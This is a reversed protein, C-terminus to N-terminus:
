QFSKSHHKFYVPYFGPGIGLVCLISLIKLLMQHKKMTEELIKKSHKILPVSKCNSVATCMVKYASIRELLTQDGAALPILKFVFTADLRDATHVAEKAM